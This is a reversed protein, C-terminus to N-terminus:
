CLNCRKLDLDRSFAELIALFTFFFIHSSYPHGSVVISLVM